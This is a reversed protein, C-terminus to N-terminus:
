RFVFPFPIMSCTSWSCKMRTFTTKWRQWRQQNDRFDDTPFMKKPGRWVSGDNTNLLTTWCNNENLHAAPRCSDCKSVQLMEKWHLQRIQNRQPSRREIELPGHSLEAEFANSFQLHKPHTVM